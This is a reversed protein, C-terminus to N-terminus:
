DLLSQYSTIQAIPSNEPAASRKRSALDSTLARKFRPSDPLPDAGAVGVVGESDANLILLGDLLKHLVVVACTIVSGHQATSHEATSHQATSHQAIGHWAAHIECNDHGHESGNM